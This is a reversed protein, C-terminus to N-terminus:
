TLLFEDSHDLLNNRLLFPFSVEGGVGRRISLPTSLVVKGVSCVVRKSTLRDVRGSM